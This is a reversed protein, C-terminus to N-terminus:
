WEVWKWTNDAPLRACMQRDNAAFATKLHLRTSYGALGSSIKEDEIELRCKSQIYRLARSFTKVLRSVEYVSHSSKAGCKSAIIEPEDIGYKGNKCKPRFPSFVLDLVQGHKANKKQDKLSLMLRVSVRMLLVEHMKYLSNIGRGAISPERQKLEKLAYGCSSNFWDLRSEKM